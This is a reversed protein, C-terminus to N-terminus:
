RCYSDSVITEGRKETDKPLRITVTVGGTGNIEYYLGYQKGFLLEIRKNVNRVGYGFNEDYESISRNMEDIEKQAMGQGNDAVKLHIAQEAEEVSLIVTGTKEERSKMGHYIANEILPQLTMKPIKVGYYRESICFKSDLINEYRMNQIILYSKIHSLEEELTIIDRGRSLCARYYNALAKVFVSLEKNGEAAAQWHICDLANYLFHPKIQSQLEKFRIQEIQHQEEKVQEVLHNIEQIMHNFGKSIIVFDQGLHEGKMRVGLNGGSVQDMKEVLKEMPRYYLKVVRSVMVLTIAVVILVTIILFWMTIFSDKVMTMNDITGLVYLNRGDVRRYVYLKGAKSFEGSDEKILESLDVRSGLRERDSCFLIKGNKDILYMDYRSDGLEQHNLFDFVDERVNICFNGIKNGIKNMDYVPQYFSITYREEGYYLNDYSIRLDGRGWPVSNELDEQYVKEFNSKTISDGRYVYVKESKYLGIFNIDDQWSLAVSLSRRSSSRSEDYKVSQTDTKLFYQINDDPILSVAIGYYNNVISELSKSVTEVNSKVLERSKSTVSVMSSLTSIALVISASITIGMTLLLKIKKDLTMTQFRDMWRKM